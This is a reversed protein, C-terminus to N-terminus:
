SSIITKLRKWVLGSKEVGTVCRARGSGTEFNFAFKWANGKTSVLCYEVVYNGSPAFTKASWAAAEACESIPREEFSAFAVGALAVLLIAAFFSKM